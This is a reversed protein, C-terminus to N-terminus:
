PMEMVDQFRVGVYFEAGTPICYRIEGLAIRDMFRVQVMTGPLMPEPIRLKLGSRSLNVARGEVRDGSTVVPHLIKVSAPEDLPARPDVRREPEQEREPGREKEPGREQPSSVDGAPTASKAPSDPREDSLSV